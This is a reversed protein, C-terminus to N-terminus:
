NIEIYLPSYTFQYDEDKISVNYFKTDYGVLGEETHSGSHIHGCFNYRINRQKIINKLGESSWDEEWATGPYSCGLKNVRPPQHTLLIDCDQIENYKNGFEDIFAWGIPGTCWPCGYFSYGEYVYSSDKLYVLKDELGLEKIIEDIKKKGIREFWFDHNGGIFIVKKCPANKVWTAFEDRFWDESLKNYRQYELPVIDGCIILVDCEEIKPLTGHLDSIGCLKIM